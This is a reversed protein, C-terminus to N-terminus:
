YASITSVYVTVGLIVMSYVMGGTVLALSFLSASMDSILMPIRSRGTLHVLFSCPVFFQFNRIKLNFLIEEYNISACFNKGM